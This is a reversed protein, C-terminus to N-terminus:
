NIQSPDSEKRVLLNRNKQATANSPEIRLAEDFHFIADARRDLQVSAVGLGVHAGVHNPDVSLVSEYHNVSEGAHGARVLANALNYHAGV